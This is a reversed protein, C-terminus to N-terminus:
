PVFLPWWTSVQKLVIVSKILLIWYQLLLAKKPDLVMNLCRLCITIKEFIPLLSTPRFKSIDDFNGKRYIHPIFTKEQCSPFLGETIVYNILKTFPIVILDKIYKILNVNFGYIDKSDKNKLGRVEIYSVTSLSFAADAVDIKDLYISPNINKQPFKKM